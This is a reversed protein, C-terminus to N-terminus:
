LPYNSSAGVYLRRSNQQSDERYKVCKGWVIERGGGVTVYSNTREGERRKEEENEIKGIIYILM